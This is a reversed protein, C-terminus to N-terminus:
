IFRRFSRKCCLSLNCLGFYSFGVIINNSDLQTIINSSRQNDQRNPNSDNAYRNMDILKQNFKRLYYFALSSIIIEMFLTLIDRIIIQFYTTIMGITSYFFETRGTFTFISINFRIENYFEDDNKVYYLFFHPLNLILSISTIFLCVMYSNLKTLPKFAKVFISLRDLAIIIDLLNGIFYLVTSILPVLFSRGLRSYYSLYDPYYRPSYCTFSLSILFCILSGNLTYFSLYKYLMTQDIKIKQLIYFSFLNLITGTLGIPTIIFVYVSDLLWTSGIREYLKLLDIEFHTSNKM